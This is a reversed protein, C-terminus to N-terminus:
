YCHLCLPILPPRLHLVIGDAAMIEVGAVAVVMMMLGGLHTTSWSGTPM